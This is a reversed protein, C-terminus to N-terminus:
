QWTVLTTWKIPSKKSLLMWEQYQFLNLRLSVYDENDSHGNFSSHDHLFQNESQVLSLGTSLYLIFGLCYTPFLFSTPSPSSLYSPPLINAKCACPGLTLGMHFPSYPLGHESDWQQPPAPQSIKPPKSDLCGVDFKSSQIRPPCRTWSVLFSPHHSLLSVM